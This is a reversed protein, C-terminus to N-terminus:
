SSATGKREGMEILAQLTELIKKSESEFQDQVTEFGEFSGKTASEEIQRCIDIFVTTGLNSAGGKLSHAAYHLAKLNRETYALLLQDRKKTIDSLAVAIFESLFVPDQDFGLMRFHNSISETLSGSAAPAQTNSATSQTTAGPGWQELIKRVDDIRIPKALYDDMGAEICKERDGQMADATLAIIKPREEASWKNVINRSAELGDMEPMHVDMFILDYSQNELERLVEVGTSVVRGVYGLQRLIHVFLRQNIENDEAVLIKLPIIRSIQAVHQTVQRKRLAPRKVDSLASLIQNFLQDQKVPKPITAFFLQRHKKLEEDHVGSSSLLFLPLTASPHISNIEIALQIGNMGPMLMDLIAIDFPDGKRLWELAEHPSVTTRPLMGWYECQLRLVQLNTPNDDVILVRKNQLEPIKGRVVVTPLSLSEAPTAIKITFFFTAGKGVESEVWMRGQMLEVLRTSIALGLGTGGYKRTTSSDVQSFAKFLRDIRERPIGIGTDRVFFELQCDTGVKWSLKVSAYIEGRDTFKIANGVLNFLIQRLRLKDGVVVSPVLPDIWYLLDLSKQLAKPALLQFIEEICEKLEFPHQELEIKGSEIKSFDLIDNIITLLAEGSTRVTEVYDRQEASLDTTLLLDTMGIVGNMPTRIEHSMVALFQSKAVTAAEAAEKAEKLAKEAKKRLTIDRYASLFMRKGHVMLLSTSILLIREEGAKTRITSEVERLEGKELLEKLGDLAHQRDSPQPYLLTTFESANAEKKTYGTIMEMTNNFVEFHGREDSLTIGDNVTSIVTQLQHESEELAKETQKRETVDRSLSHIEKIVGIRSDRIMRTTSEFWIYTGDKRRFRYTVTNVDSIDVIDQHAKRVTELDEPHFFEYISHGVLETESYGLLTHCSPSVYLYEGEPTHRAILDSANEALLRFREESERLAAETGKRDTIDRAVAQVGVTRGGERVIQLHQGLWVMRGQKSVIPFELYTSDTNTRLQAKYFTETTSRIDAPILDLYKKGLIELESYGTIRLAVPNAYIFHGNQDATYIIDDAGEVLTQYRLRSEKLAEEAQKQASIDRYIGCVGIRNGGLRIPSGIVSVYIPFGDKRKRITETQVTENQTVRLSLDDAESHLDAPVILDDLQRGKAETPTYGFLTTFARNVELIRDHKDLFVVGEPSNEFLQQFYLSHNAPPKRSYTRSRPTSKQIVSKGTTKRSKSSKM